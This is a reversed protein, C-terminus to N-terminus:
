RNTVTITASMGEHYSCYYTFIGPTKFTYSYREGPHLDASRIGPLDVSLVNHTVKGTHIWTVTTGAVVTLAAPMFLNDGIKVTQQLATSAATTTSQATQARETKLVSACLPVVALNVATHVNVYAGLTGSIRAPDARLLVTAQGQANTKFPPFGLTIPGSSACPDSSAAGLAHYHAVYPTSPTLGRLTLVSVSSTPSLTRVTLQGSASSIPTGQLKFPFSMTPTAVAGASSLLLASALVSSLRLFRSM